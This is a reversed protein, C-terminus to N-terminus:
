ADSLIEEYHQVFLGLSTTLVHYRYKHEDGYDIGVQSLEERAADILTDLVEAGNEQEDKPVAISWTRRNRRPEPKSKPKIKQHCTPCEGALTDVPHTHNEIGPPQWALPQVSGESPGWLFREDLFAIMAENDTIKRHHTSCLGICNGSVRADPLQVWWYDGNLFSRRWLHHRESPEACGPVACRENLDYTDGDVGMVNRSALPLRTM